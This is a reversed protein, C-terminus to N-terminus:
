WLFRLRASVNARMKVVRIRGDNIGAPLAACGPRFSVNQMDVRLQVATDDVYWHGRDVNWEEPRWIAPADSVLMSGDKAARCWGSLFFSFVFLFLSLSVKKEWQIVYPVPHSEPFEIHCNFVISDGVLATLHEADQPNSLGTCWDRNRSICFLIVHFTESNYGNVIYNCEIEFKFVFNVKFNVPAFMEDTWKLGFSANDPSMVLRGNDIASFWSVGAVTQHGGRLRKLKAPAFRRPALYKDVGAEENENGAL